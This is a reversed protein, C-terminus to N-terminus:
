DRGDLQKARLDVYISKQKEKDGNSLAYAKAWLTRSKINNSQVENYAQLYSHESLKELTKKGTKYDDGFKKIRTFLYPVIFQLIIFPALLIFYFELSKEKSAKSCHHKYDSPNYEYDNFFNSGYKESYSKVKEGYIERNIPFSSKYLCVEDEIEHFKILGQQIKVPLITNAVLMTNSRYDFIIVLAIFGLWLFSANKSFKNLYEVIM